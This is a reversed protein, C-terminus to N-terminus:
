TQQWFAKYDGRLAEEMTIRLNNQLKQTAHNGHLFLNVVIAEIDIDFTESHQGGPDALLVIRRASAM